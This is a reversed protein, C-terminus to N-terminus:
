VVSTSSSSSVHLLLLLLHHRPHSKSGTFFFFFIVECACPLLWRLQIRWAIFLSLSPSPHHPLFSLFIICATPRPAACQCTVCITLNNQELLSCFALHSPHDGLTGVVLREACVRVKKPSVENDNYPCLHCCCSCWCSSKNKQSNRTGSM